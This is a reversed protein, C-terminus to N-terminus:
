AGQKRGFGSLHKKNTALDSVGSRFSGCDRATLEYFSSAMQGRRLEREVAARVIAAKSVGRARAEAAIIPELEGFKITIGSSM